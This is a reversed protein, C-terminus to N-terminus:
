AILCLDQFDCNNSDLGFEKKEKEKKKIWAPASAEKRAYKFVKITTKAMLTYTFM